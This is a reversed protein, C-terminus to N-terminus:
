WWYSYFLMKIKRVKLILLLCSIKKRFLMYTRTALLRAEWGIGDKLDIDWEVLEM